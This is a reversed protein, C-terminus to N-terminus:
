AELNSQHVIPTLSQQAEQWGFNTKRRVQPTAILADRATIFYKKSM